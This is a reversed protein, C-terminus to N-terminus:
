NRSPFIGFLAIIYNVALYPQVNTHSQSGGANGLTVSTDVELMAPDMTVDDVVANPRFINTGAALMNGAPTSASGPRSEARMNATTQVNAAHTHNPMEAETLTVNEAGGKQGQIYSSLGPGQRPGIAVRGRLDPLGFTTRGDGGYTTGLIAFLANNQSIALLQGDCFAWNRPAFNGGFMIIEGIFPDSM